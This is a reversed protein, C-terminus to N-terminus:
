LQLLSTPLSVNRQEEATQTCANGGHQELRSDAAQVLDDGRLRLTENLADVGHEHHREEGHGHGAPHVLEEGLGPADEALAPVVHKVKTRRRPDAKPVWFNPLFKVNQHETSAALPWM